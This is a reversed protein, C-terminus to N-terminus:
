GITYRIDESVLLNTHDIRVRCKGLWRKVESQLKMNAEEVSPAPIIALQLDTVKGDYMVSFDIEYRHIM